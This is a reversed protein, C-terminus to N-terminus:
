KTFNLPPLIIAGIGGKLSMNTIHERIYPFIIAAGNVKGFEDLDTLPSEGICEFVGVMKVKINVQEVDNLTQIVTVEETVTIVKGSVAVNTGINVKNDVKSDFVVNNIRFFSCETLLLNKVQYGSDFKNTNEM